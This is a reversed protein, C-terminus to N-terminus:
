ETGNLLLFIGFNLNQPSLNMRFSNGWKDQGEEKSFSFGVLGFNGRVGLTSTIQYVLSPTYGISLATFDRNYVVSTNFDEYENNGFSSFFSISSAFSFREALPSYHRWFVSPSVSWAKRINGYVLPLGSPTTTLFYNRSSTYGMGVGLEDQANLMYGATAGVAFTYPSKFEKPADKDKFSTLYNANADLLVAGKNFQAEAHLAFLLGIFSLYISTTKRTM